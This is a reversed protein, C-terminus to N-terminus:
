CDFECPTNPRHHIALSGTDLAYTPQLEALPLVSWSEGVEAVISCTSVSMIRREIRLSKIMIPINYHNKIRTKTVDMERGETYIGVESPRRGCPLWQTRNGLGFGQEHRIQPQM